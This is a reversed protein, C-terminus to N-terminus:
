KLDKDHKLYYDLEMKVFQRVGPDPITAVAEAAKAGGDKYFTVLSEAYVLWVCHSCGSKCCEEEGPPRPPGGFKRQGPQGPVKLVTFTATKDGADSDDQRSGSSLQRTHERLRPGAYSQLLRRLPARGPPNALVGFALKM